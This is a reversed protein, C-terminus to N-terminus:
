LNNAAAQEAGTLLNSGIITSVLVLGIIILMILGVIGAITSSAIQGKKDMKM